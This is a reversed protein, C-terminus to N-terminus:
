LEIKSLNLKDAAENLAAAGGLVATQAHEPKLYTDAVRKIDDMSVNLVNQRFARRAEATRGHLGAYYAGIAEGAPSDPRDIGSVVGLIAEELVRYEHDTNLLWEISADFDKLTGEVRPDRYSFFRFSASDSDWSAGSGYAGGQERIARHLFGNRLVGGLVSLAASDAHAYGVAPYAKACFNVQAPAIWAEAVQGDVQPASFAHDLNGAAHDPWHEALAETLAARQEGEGVLLLRRPANAIIQQLEAFREALDAVNAAQKMANDTAKLHQLGALGNWRHSLGSCPSLKAAAARVAQSHGADTLSSERYARAQAVLERLRSHEDFRPQELTEVLLRSLEGANRNLAKGSLAFLGRTQRVDDISARVSFRANIGGTVASQREQTQLYTEGAVGVENIADSFYPLLDLYDDGIHPLDVLVHAYVLGNTGQAYWALPAGKLAHAESEAIHLSDPVDDLTVKPLLEPDDQEMQRQELLEAKVVIDQKSADDLQAAIADLREREAAAERESLEADPKMVLRVRHPNDLLLRRVLSPIYAPDQILEGLKKLASDINLVAAPDGGHVAPGLANVMLQLGYPFSGGGVERQGLEVQHLVSEVQSQPVGNEAIGNLVDLILDQTAQARDPESGELGCVFIMERMSDDVGCLDSPSSGLETTELALRLPSASNNLLVGSLLHAEMAGFADTSDSLLWGMVVHTKGALDDEDVSYVSEVERPAAYRQEFPVALDIDLKDFSALAKEEFRAQHEEVPIDGYTMFIANSPHYHEAHFDVLDKHTLDPINVPEGGSNYHYTTTPFLETQLSQWLRRTPSSMAGKMENFVVGKFELPSSADQPDSFELRHGEQLFDMENLNPFFAADLYVDLLNFFDKRSQSAFPYATWDSSTFANMFTNLSRRTMMFFPDRVPYRKSGCLSTHELIHAVGTSDQPVTLFAVLFANNNDESEIHFHRAGTVTHRFEHFTANLTPLPESRVAEFNPHPM